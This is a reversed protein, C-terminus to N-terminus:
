YYKMHVAVTESIEDRDQTPFFYLDLDNTGIDWSHGGGVPSELNYNTVRITGAQRDYTILTQNQEVRQHNRAEVGSGRVGFKIIYADDHLKRIGEPIFIQKSTRRVKSYIHDVLGELDKYDEVPSEINSAAYKAIQEYIEQAVTDELGGFGQRNLQFVRKTAWRPSGQKDTGLKKIYFTYGTDIELKIAGPQHGWRIEHLFPMFPEFLGIRKKSLLDMMLEVDFQRIPKSLRDDDESTQPAPKPEFGFIDTAEFYKKFSIKDM